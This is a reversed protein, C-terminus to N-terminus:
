PMKFFQLWVGISNAHNNGLWREWDLASQFAAIEVTSELNM